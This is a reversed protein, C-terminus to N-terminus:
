AEAPMLLALCGLGYFTYEVDCTDDWAAALFGGSPCELAQAFQWARRMNINELHNLDALTSLGTFTSLLDAVPIRTNALLGGEENQMKALFRATSTRTPEDLADLM